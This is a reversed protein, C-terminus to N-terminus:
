IVIEGEPVARRTWMRLWEALASTNGVKHQEQLTLMENRFRPGYNRQDRPAVLRGKDGDLGATRAPQLLKAAVM